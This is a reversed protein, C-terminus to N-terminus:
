TVVNRQDAFYANPDFPQDTALLPDVVEARRKTALVIWGVFIPYMIFRKRPEYDEMFAGLILALGGVLFLKWNFNQAFGVFFAWLAVPLLLLYFTHPVGLTPIAHQWPLPRVLIKFLGYVNSASGVVAEAGGKQEVVTMGETQMISAFGIAIVTAFLIRHTLKLGKSTLTHVGFACVIALALYFRMTSIIWILSAIFCWNLITRRLSITQDPRDSGISRDAVAMIMMFLALILTDKLNRFGFYSFQYFVAGLVFYAIFPATRSGTAMRWTNVLMGLGIHFLLLKALRLFLMPYEPCVKFAILNVVFYGLHSSAGREYVIDEVTIDSVRRNIFTLGFDYYRKADVSQDLVIPHGTTDVRHQHVLMFITVKIAVIMVIIMRQPMTFGKALRFPVYILALCLIVM